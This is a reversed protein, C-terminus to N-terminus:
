IKEREVFITFSAPQDGEEIIIRRNGNINIVLSKLYKIMKHELEITSYLLEINQVKTTQNDKLGECIGLSIANNYKKIKEYPFVDTKQIKIIFAENKELVYLPTYEFSIFLAWHKKEKQFILVTEKTTDIQLNKGYQFHGGTIYMQLFSAGQLHLFQKKNSPTIDRLIM